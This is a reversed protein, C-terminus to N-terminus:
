KRRIGWVQRQCKRNAREDLIRQIRAIPPMPVDSGYQYILASRIKGADRLYALREIEPVTIRM